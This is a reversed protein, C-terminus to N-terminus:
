VLWRKLEDPDPPALAWRNAQIAFAAAWSNHHGSGQVYEIGGTAPHQHAGLFGRAAAIQADYRDRDVVAWIRIAQAAIDTPRRTDPGGLPWAPLGGDPAQVRALFAAGAAVEPAHIGLMLLGELAYCHAHTYTQTSDRHVCFRGDSPEFCHDVLESALAEAFYRRGHLALHGCAKILHAGFAESWRGPRKVPHAAQGASLMGAVREALVQPRSVCPIALATDFAFHQEGRGLAGNQRVLRDLTEQLGLLRPTDGLWGFLRAFLATAEDYPYGDETDPSAGTWSRIRGDQARLNDSRVWRQLAGPQFPASM